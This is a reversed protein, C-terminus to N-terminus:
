KDFYVKIINTFCKNKMENASLKLKDAMKCKIRLLIYNTCTCIKYLKNSSNTILYSYFGYFWKKADNDDKFILDITKREKGRNNMIFSMFLYPYNEKNNMKKVINIKNLINKTKLGIVIKVIQNFDYNEKEKNSKETKFIQFNGTILDLKYFHIKTGKSRFNVKEILGGENVKTLNNLYFKKLTMSHNNNNQNNLYTNLHLPTYIKENNNTTNFNTLPNSNLM